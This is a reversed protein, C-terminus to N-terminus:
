PGAAPTSGGRALQNLIQIAQSPDYGTGASSVNVGSSLTALLETQSSALAVWLPEQEAPVQIVVPPGIAVVSVGRAVLVPSVPQASAVGPVPSGSGAPPAVAYVDLSSGVQLPPSLKLSVPVDVLVRSSLDDPRLLDGAAVAHTTRAGVPSGSAVRFADGGQPVSVQRVDQATIVAGPALDHGAEWAAVNRQGAYTAAVLAVAAAALLVAAAPVVLRVWRRNM